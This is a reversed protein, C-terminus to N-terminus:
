QLVLNKVLVLKGCDPILTLPRSTVLNFSSSFDLYKGFSDTPLPLTSVHRGASGMKTAFCGSVTCFYKM